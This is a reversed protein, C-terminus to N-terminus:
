VDCRNHMGTDRTCTMYTYQFLACCGVLLLLVFFVDLLLVFCSVVLERNEAEAEIGEDNM